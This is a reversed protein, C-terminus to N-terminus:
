KCALGELTLAHYSYDHSFLTLMECPRAKVSVAGSNSQFRMTTSVCIVEHPVSVNLVSFISGQWNTYFRGVQVTLVERKTLESITFRSFGKQM